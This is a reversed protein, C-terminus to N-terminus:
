EERDTVLKGIKATPFCKKVTGILSSILFEIKDEQTKNARVELMYIKSFKNTAM